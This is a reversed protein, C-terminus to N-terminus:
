NDEDDDGYEKFETHEGCESCLGTVGIYADGSMDFMYHPDASCCVSLWDSM